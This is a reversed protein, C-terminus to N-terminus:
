HLWQLDSAGSVPPLDWRMTSILTLALWLFYIYMYIYIYIYVCICMHMYRYLINAYICVCAHM